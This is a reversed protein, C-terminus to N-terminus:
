DTSKWGPPASSLENMPSWARKGDNQVNHQGRGRGRAQLAGRARMVSVPSFNGGMGAPGGALGGRGRNAFATLTTTGVHPSPSPAEHVRWAPTGPPNEDSPPLPDRPTPPFPFRPGGIGSPTTGGVRPTLPYFQGPTTPHSSPNSNNHTSNNRSRNPLTFPTPPWVSEVDVVMGANANTNTTVVPSSPPSGHVMDHDGDEDHMDEDNIRLGSSSTDVIAREELQHTLNAWGASQFM